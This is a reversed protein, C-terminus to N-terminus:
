KLADLFNKVDELLSADGYLKLTVVDKDTATVRDRWGSSLKVGVKGDLMYHGRDTQEKELELYEVYQEEFSKPKEM